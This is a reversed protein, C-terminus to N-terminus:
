WMITGDEMLAGDSLPARRHPCRDVFCLPASGDEPLFAVMPEDFLTFKYPLGKPIDQLAAPRWCCVATSSGTQFM